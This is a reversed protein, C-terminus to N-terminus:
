ELKLLGKLGSWALGDISSDLLLAHIVSWHVFMFGAGALPEVFVFWYVSYLWEFAIWTALGLGGQGQPVWVAARSRPADQLTTM